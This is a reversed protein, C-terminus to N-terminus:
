GLLRDLAALLHLAEARVAASAHALKHNLKSLVPLALADLDGEMWAILPAGAKPGVTGKGNLIPSSHVQSFGCYGPWLPRPPEVSPWPNAFGPSM